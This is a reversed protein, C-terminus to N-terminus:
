YIHIYLINNNEVYKLSDGLMRWLIFLDMLSDLSLMLLRLLMDESHTGGNSQFIVFGTEQEFIKSEDSGVHPSHGLVYCYDRTSEIELIACIFKAEIIRDGTKELTECVQNEKKRIEGNEDM